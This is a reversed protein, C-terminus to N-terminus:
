EFARRLNARMKELEDMVEQAEERISRLDALHSQVEESLDPEPTTPWVTEM